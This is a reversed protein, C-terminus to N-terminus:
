LHFTELATNLDIYIDAKPKLKMVMEHEHKLVEIRFDDMIEKMSREQIMLTETWTMEMYVKLDSQNINLAYLGHVILVDIGSFDTELLDVQETLLDVSRYRSTRNNEFDGIVSKVREWDIERTGVMQLGNKQRWERREKPPVIYFDDLDILKSVVGNQKLLRGLALSVVSKGSAIEGAVTIVTKKGPKMITQLRELIILAADAHNKEPRAANNQM